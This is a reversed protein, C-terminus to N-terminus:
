RKYEDLTVDVSLEKGDRVVTVHVKTGPKADTLVYMVDEAAGVVHGDLRVLLDGKKLGAKDAPGGPRVGALLMGRVGKPPGAPDPITGLSVRFRPSSGDLATAVKQYDLRGSLDTLDRVIQESVRAVAAMGAANLTDMTDTAKGYDGHVGTFLHLIPVGAQYFPAHDSAGFGGATARACQIHASDCAGALLDGWQTATDAGLVQLTNDRLRGVMDLNIMAVIDKMAISGPPHKV